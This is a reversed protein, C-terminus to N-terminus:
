RLAAFSVRGDVLGAEGTTSRAEAVLHGLALGRVEEPYEPDTLHVLASRARPLRSALVGLSVTAQKRVMSSPDTAAVTLLCDVRRDGHETRFQLGWAALDRVSADDDGLARDCAHRVAAEDALFREAAASAGRVAPDADHALTRVLHKCARCAANGAAAVFLSREARTSTALAAALTRDIRTALEDRGNARAVDELSGLALWARGRTEGASGRAIRTVEAALAADVDHAFGAASVLPARCAATARALARVIEAPARGPIAFLETALADTARGCVPASALDEYLLPVCAEREPAETSTAARAADLIAHVGAQTLDADSTALGARVVARAASCSLVAPTDAVGVEAARPREATRSAAAFALARPAIGALARPIAAATEGSSAVLVVAALLAFVRLIRM